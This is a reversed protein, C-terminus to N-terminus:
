KTVVVANEEAIDFIEKISNIAYNYISTIFKIPHTFIIHNIEKSTLEREYDYDKEIVDKLYPKLEIFLDNIISKTVEESNLIALSETAVKYGAIDRLDYSDISGDAAFITNVNQVSIIIIILM